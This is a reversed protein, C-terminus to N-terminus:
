CVQNRLIIKSLTNRIGKESLAFNVIATHSLPIGSLTRVPLSSSLLCHDRHETMWPFDHQEM